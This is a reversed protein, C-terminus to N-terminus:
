APPCGCVEGFGDQFGQCSTFPIWGTTPEDYSIRAAQAKCTINRFKGKMDFEGYDVVADANPPPFTGDPCLSCVPVARVPPLEPCGCTWYAQANIGLCADDNSNYFTTDLEGCAVSGPFYELSPNAPQAGGYCLTCKTSETSNLPTGPCGCYFGIGDQFDKCTSFPISGAKPEEYSIRVAEAECTINRYKRDWGLIEGYDVVEDSKPPPFTGDVCLNCIGPKPNSSM